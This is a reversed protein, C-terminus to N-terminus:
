RALDARGPAGRDPPGRVRTSVGAAGCGFVIGLITHTRLFPTSIPQVEGFGVGFVTIVVMYVADPLSFGGRVYGFVAMCCICIFVTFGLLVRRVPGSLM